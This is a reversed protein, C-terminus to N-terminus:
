NREKKKLYNEVILMMFYILLVTFFLQRMVASFSSRVFAKLVTSILMIVLFARKYDKKASEYTVSNLIKGIIMGWIFMALLGFWSFNAFTEAIFTYGLGSSRGLEQQMWDGLNAKLAPHTKWFGLNPIVASLAYLYSEGLRFEGNTGILQMTWALSSMSWGLEGILSGVISTMSLSSFFSGLTRNTQTRTRAIASLIGMSFYGAIGVPIIDKKTIPTGFYQKTLLFALIVLVAGSRGGIFLVIAIYIILVVTDIKAYVKNSSVHIAYKMLLAIPFWSAILPIFQGMQSYESVSSYYGLYGNAIVAPIIRIYNIFMCPFSVILLITSVVKITKLGIIDDYMEYHRIRAVNENYTWVSGVFFLLLGVLSYQLAEGIYLKDIRPIYQLLDIEGMNIGLAWCFCQGIGFMVAVFYVIFFPSIYEGTLKKWMIFTSILEFSSVISIFRITNDDYNIAIMEKLIFLDIFIYVMIVSMIKFKKRSMFRM